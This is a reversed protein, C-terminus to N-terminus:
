NCVLLIHKQFRTGTLRKTALGMMLTQDDWRRSSCACGPGNHRQWIGTGSRGVMSASRPVAVANM